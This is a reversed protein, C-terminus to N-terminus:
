YSCYENAWRAQFNLSCACFVTSQGKFDNFFLFSNELVSQCLFNLICSIIHLEDEPLKPSPPVIFASPIHQMLCVEKWVEQVTYASLPIGLLTTSNKLRILVSWIACMSGMLHVLSTLSAGCTFSFSDLRLELQRRDTKKLKKKSYISGTRSYRWGGRQSCNQHLSWISHGTSFSKSKSRCPGLAKRKLYWFVCGLDVNFISVSRLEWESPLM